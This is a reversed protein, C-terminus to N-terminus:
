HLRFIAEKGIWAAKVATEGTWGGLKLINIVYETADAVTCKYQCILKVRGNSWREDFNM